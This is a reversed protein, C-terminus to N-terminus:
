SLQGEPRQGSLVALINEAAIRSVREAAERTTPAYHPTVIVNPMCFLPSDPALPEPDTVDLGAGGLAGRQLADLLAAEDVIPGRACNLLLAGPKMMALRQRDLLGRTEDTLLCHLSVADACRLLTELEDTLTVGEPATRLYPDYAMIQMGLGDRCIRAVHTGIRGLGILGLTKGSLEMGPAHNKASFGVTRYEDAVPILNKSLALLLAVTHEAVSISNANPTVAVAIGHARCYDLDINDYGVGHKSVVRLKKATSLLTGPLEVIRVLVADADVLERRIVDMDREAFVVTHGGLVLQAAGAPHISETILIKSM